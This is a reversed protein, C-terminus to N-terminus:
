RSYDEAESASAGEWKVSVGGSHEVEQKNAYGMKGLILTATRSELEGTLSRELLSTEIKMKARALSDTVQKQAKKEKCPYKGKLWEYLTDKHIGLYLALGVMTYPRSVEATRKGIVVTRVTRDCEEFYADIKQILEDPKIKAQYKGPMFGEKRAMARTSIVFGKGM